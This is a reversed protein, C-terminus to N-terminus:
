GAVTFTRTDRDAPRTSEGGSPDSDHVELVYTGPPLTLTLEWPAFTQGESTTTFGDQVVAGDPTTLRWPLNAEFVNAEGSARVPSRVTEGDAPSDIGVLLRVDLPDERRLPGDWVLHGWSAPEGEITALVAAQPDTAETVTWVLQRVMAEEASAGVNAGRAEGSLDVRVVDDSREVSLVRTDTPWSSVYDGDEPGTIMAELAGRVDAAGPRSERTLRFGRTTEVVFYVPGPDTSAPTVTPTPEAPSATPAPATPSSSGAPSSGPTPTPAPAPACGALLLMVTAVVPWRLNM